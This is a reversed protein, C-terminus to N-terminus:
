SSIIVAGGIDTLPMDYCLIEINSNYKDCFARIKEYDPHEKVNGFFYVTRGDAFSAGGIFGYDFGLLVIHGPSILLVDAGNNKLAKEISKDSTIVANDNVVLTSCRAYGQNVNVPVIGNEVCYDIVSTDVAGLKGYLRDGLFLCNLRVNEPYRKGAPKECKEITFLRDKIRLLQMDAHRQEPKTFCNYNKTPIIKYDFRELANCFCPYLDSMVVQKM